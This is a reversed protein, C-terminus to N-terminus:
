QGRMAERDWDIESLKLLAILLADQEEATISFSLIKNRVQIFVAEGLKKVTSIEITEGRSRANAIALRDAEERTKRLREAEIDGGLVARVLDRLRYIDANQRYSKGAPEIGMEQIRAALTHRDFGAIQCFKAVTYTDSEPTTKRTM